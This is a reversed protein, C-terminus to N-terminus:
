CHGEELALEKEPQLGDKASKAIIGTLCLIGKCKRPQEWGGGRGRGVVGVVGVERHGVCAHVCPKAEDESSM